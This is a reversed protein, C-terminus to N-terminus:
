GGRARSRRRTGRGAADGSVTWKQVIQERRRRRHGRAEARADGRRAGQGDVSVDLVVRAM